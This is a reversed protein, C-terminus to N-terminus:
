KSLLYLKYIISDCNLFIAQEDTLILLNKLLLLFLFFISKEEWSSLKEELINKYSIFCSVIQNSMMAVCALSPFFFLYFM